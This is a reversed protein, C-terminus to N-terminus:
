AIVAVVYTLGGVSYFRELLDSVNEYLLYEDYGTEGTLGISIYQYPNEATSGGSGFRGIQGLSYLALGARNESLGALEAVKASTLNNVVPQAIVHAKIAKIVADIEQFLPDKPNLHWLGILTPDGNNFLRVDIKKPDFDRPIKGLLKVKIIRPDYPETRMAEEM